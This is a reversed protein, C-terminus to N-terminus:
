SQRVRILLSENIEEKQEFIKLNRRKWLLWCITIFLGSWGDRKWTSSNFINTRLWQPLNMCFFNNHENRDILSKWLLKSDKCDRLVHLLDETIDLCCNCHDELCLNRRKREANTLLKEQIALWAFTKCKQMINLKWIRQWIPDNRTQNKMLIGYASKVTLEGSNEHNWSVTQNVYDICTDNMVEIWNNRIGLWNNSGPRKHDIVPVLDNGCKYKSRIVKVWLDDRRNMLKWGLKMMYAKNQM